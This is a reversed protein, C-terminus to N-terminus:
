QKNGLVEEGDILGGERMKENEYKAREINRDFDGGTLGITEEQRTSFGNKVRYEAARVEKLPDIQGTSPGHWNATSYAQRVLPDNFFGPAKIRGISIAEALWEEYIPQCFDSALWTRRMRFMKWAELLAARSASYSSTFHKLLLEYPLELAAGMKKCLATVFGDYATNPRTPNAFNAKEGPALEVIAGNGMEIADDDTDDEMVDDDVGMGGGFAGDSTMDQQEIFVTYMTSVVAAMLEAQSYRSLQKLDEIIVSVIPVGRRQGPRESEMLHIVNLRGTKKGFKEVRKWEKKGISSSLPHKNCFYYAIVEGYEGTEVGSIIEKGEKNQPTSCRDAELLWVRTDYPMNPRPVLPLLAFSDGSMLQSYFALQQLESFNNKREADCNISNAWLRWERETTQQWKEAAEKSLGLYKYDIQPKMQLGEGVVNTRITKLAGAAISEGMSLDRSRERLLGLNKDIDEVTSGGRSNWGQFSKKSRSAGHNSYGTNMIELKKRAMTRKLALEPNFTAIAKDILKM